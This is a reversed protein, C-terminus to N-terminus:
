FYLRLMINGGMPVSGSNVALAAKDHLKFEGYVEFFMLDLGLGVSFYHNYFQTGVKLFDFFKLNVGFRAHELTRYMADSFNDNNDSVARFYGIFNYLDFSFKADMVSWDPQWSIGADFDLSFRYDFHKFLFAAESLYQLLNESQYPTQAQTFGLLDNLVLGVSLTPLPRWIAGVDLGWTYGYNVKNVSLLEPVGTQFSVPDPIEWLFGYNLTAGLSLKEDFLHFGGGATLGIENYVKNIGVKKTWPVSDVPDKGNPDLFAVGSLSANIGLGFGKVLFGIRSSSILESSVKSPISAFFDNNAGTFIEHINNGIGAMQDENLSTAAKIIAAPDNWDIGDFPNDLAAYEPDTGMKFFSELTKKTILGSEYLRSFSLGANVFDSSKLNQDRQLNNAIDYLDSLLLFSDPTSQLGFTMSFDFGSEGATAAPNVFLSNVGGSEAVYPHSSNKEQEFFTGGILLGPIFIMVLVAHIRKM